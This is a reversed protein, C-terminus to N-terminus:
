EERKTIPQASKRLWLMLDSVYPKVLEPKGDIEVRQGHERWYIDFAELIALLEGM